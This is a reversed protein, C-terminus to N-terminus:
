DGKALRLECLTCVPGTPEESALAARLDAWLHQTPIFQFDDPYCRKRACEAEWQSPYRKAKSAARTTLHTRENKLWAGANDRGQRVELMWFPDDPDPNWDDVARADRLADDARPPQRPATHFQVAQRYQHPNTSVAAIISIWEATPIFVPDGHGLIEVGEELCRRFYIGNRWHYAASEMVDDGLHQALMTHGPGSLWDDEVASRQESQNAQMANGLAAMVKQIAAWDVRFGYEFTDPHLSVASMNVAELAALAIRLAPNEDMCEDIGSASNVAIQRAYWKARLREAFSHSCGEIGDCIPCPGTDDFGTAKAYAAITSELRQRKGRHAENAARVVDLEALMIRVDAKTPMVRSDWTSRELRKLITEIM